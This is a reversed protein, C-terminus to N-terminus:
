AENLNGLMQGLLGGRIKDRPQEASLEVIGEAFPEGASTVSGLGVWLCCMIYPLWKMNQHDTITQRRGEQM